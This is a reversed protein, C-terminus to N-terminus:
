AEAKEKKSKQLCRYITPVSVGLHEAVLHVSGKVKFIGQQSLAQVLERKERQSLDKASDPGSPFLRVLGARVLDAMDQHLTEKLAADPQLGMSAILAGMEEYAGLLHHYDSNLCLLGVPEGAEDRIFFTSSNLRHGSVSRGEYGALFPTDRYAGRELLELSLDTAPSGPKRGSIHGNRIAIVSAGPDSLDHLVVETNSGLAAALFDVLPLYSRLRPHM